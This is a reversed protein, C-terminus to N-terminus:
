RSWKKIWTPVPSRLPSSSPSRRRRTKGSSPRMSTMSDAILGTPEAAAELGFGLAQGADPHHGQAVLDALGDGALEGVGGPGLVQNEGPGPPLLPM